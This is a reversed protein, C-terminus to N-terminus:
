MVLANAVKNAEDLNYEVFPRIKFSYNSNKAGTDNIIGIGRM